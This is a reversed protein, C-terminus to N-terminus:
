EAVIPEQVQWRLGKPYFFRIKERAVSFVAEKAMRLEGDLSIPTVKDCIIKVVKAKFHRVLHPLETYRGDKYKGIVTAVQLRSVAKVVLVDLLGDAPDAEPVPNFGGGYFRGNCMCVFTKDGDITEGNIEVVYHEAICRFINVVTSAAYARFGQLLPIRKYNAVDVGIRADLGVSCINISYDDNCRILDFTATEAELLRDIDFFARPDNFLKVFDNGSGGSFVTIAVNDYGAAGQVVENLTGDGGCAYIRYSEGTEAAERTLRTCDGPGQSIAIRYPATRNAFAAEIKQTYEATRNRSGAAPNIIFLHTM